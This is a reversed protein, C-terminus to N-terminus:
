FTIGVKGIFSHHSLKEAFETKFFKDTHTKLRELEQLEYGIGIQLNTKSTIKIQIGVSPQFYFGGNAKSALIFSYGTNCDIYPRYKTEKKHFFYQINGYIPLLMKEYSSLGTGLGISFKRSVAYHGTIQGIIPSKAPESMSLGTGITASFSLNNAKEQAKCLIPSLLFLILIITKM